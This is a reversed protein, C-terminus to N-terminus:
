IKLLQLADELVAKGDLIAYHDQNILMAKIPYNKISNEIESFRHKLHPGILLVDISDAYEQIETDSAAKISVEIGITKAAKRMSQAVFGSSAGTGCALLIRIM